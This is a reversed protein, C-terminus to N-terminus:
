RVSYESPLKAKLRAIGALIEDRHKATRLWKPFENVLDYNASLVPLQERLDASIYAELFVLFAPTYSWLTRGCCPTRLWLEYSYYKKRRKVDWGSTKEPAHFTKALGCASCTIREVFRKWVGPFHSRGFYAARACQQCRPCVVLWVLGNTDNTDNTISSENFRKAM